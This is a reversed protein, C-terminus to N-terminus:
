RSPKQDSITISLWAVASLDREIEIRVEGGRIAIDAQGKLVVTLRLLGYAIELSRYSHARTVWQICKEQTSNRTGVVKGTPIYVCDFPSSLSNLRAVGDPSCM